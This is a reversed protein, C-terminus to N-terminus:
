ALAELHNKILNNLPKRHKPQNGGAAAAALRRYISAQGPRGM